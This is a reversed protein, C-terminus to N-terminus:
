RTSCHSGQRWNSLLFRVMGVWIVPRVLYGMITYGIRLWRFQAPQWFRVTASFALLPPFLPIVQWVELLFIGILMIIAAVGQALIRRACRRDVDYSSAPPLRLFMGLACGSNLPRTWVANIINYEEQHICMLQEILLIRYGQERLRFGIEPEEGRLVNLNYGGVDQLVSKVFTGGAGPSDVFGPELLTWPYASIRAILSHPADREIRRGFVCAVNNQGLYTVAARLYHPDILTDGDAFHVIDHQAEHLGRNRALSASPFDSHEECVRVGLSRAIEPSGDTSDTDVYIIELRDEPYDINKVSEICARLNEAENRGIVVVSVGPLKMQEDFMAM